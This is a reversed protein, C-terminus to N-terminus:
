SQSRYDGRGVAQHDRSRYISQGDSRAGRLAASWILRRTLILLMCSSQQSIVVPCCEFRIHPAVLHRCKLSKNAERFCYRQKGEPRRNQGCPPNSSPLYGRPKLIAFGVSHSTRVFGLRRHGIPQKINRCDYWDQNGRSQEKTEIQPKCADFLGTRPVLFNGKFRRSGYSWHWKTSHAM